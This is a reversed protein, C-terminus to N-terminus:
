MHGIPQLSSLESGLVYRGLVFADDRSSRLARLTLSHTHTIPLTYTLTDTLTHEWM